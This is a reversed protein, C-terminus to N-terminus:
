YFRDGPEQYLRVGKRIVKAAIRIARTELYSISVDAKVAATTLDDLIGFHEIMWDM